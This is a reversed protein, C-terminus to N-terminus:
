KKTHMYSVIIVVLMIHSLNSHNSFKFSKAHSIYNAQLDRIQTAVFAHMCNNWNELHILQEIIRGYNIMLSHHPSM